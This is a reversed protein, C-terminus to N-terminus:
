GKKVKFPRSFAEAFSKRKTSNKNLSTVAALCFMEDEDKPMFNDPMFFELKKPTNLYPPPLQIWEGRPAYVEEEIMPVLFLGCIDGGIKLHEGSVIAPRNIFLAGDEGGFASKIEDIRMPSSELVIHSVSLNKVANEAQKSPTFSLKFHSAVEGPQMAASVNGEVSLGLTGMGLLDVAYGRAIFDPLEGAIYRAAALMTETDIGPNKRQISGIIEKISVTNKKIKGYNGLSKGDGDTLNSQYVSVVLNKKGIHDFDGM